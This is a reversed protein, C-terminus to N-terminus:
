LEDKDSTKSAPCGEHTWTWLEEYNRRCRGQSGHGRPVPGSPKQHLRSILNPRKKNGRHGQSKTPCTRSNRSKLRRTMTASILTPLIQLHDQPERRYIKLADYERGGQYDQLDPVSSPLTDGSVTPRACSSAKLLATWRWDTRAASGDLADMLEEWDAENEQLSRVLASPVQHVGDKRRNLTGITPLSSLLM